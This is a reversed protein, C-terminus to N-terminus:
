GTAELEGYDCEERQHIGLEEGFWRQLSAVLRVTGDPHACAGRGNLVGTLELIREVPGDGRDAADVALALAPLGFKCPGCRGASQSALYSVIRATEHVPCSGAPLPLVVGAGLRAGLGALDEAAIRRGKLAGAPVWVGHYGGLLVPRELETPSLVTGWSAGIVVEGVKAAPTDGARTILMTAPDPGHAWISALQAYTEANSLLTPRGRYGSVAEPAWATVPLNARGSMLEIVARAQGSVFGADATDIRWEVKDGGEREALAETMRIRVMPKDGPLVLHVRRAGLARAALVAGDLILHPRRTALVEDKRSAPEGESLNVVVVAGRRAAATRLKTAFPFAAGGRGRLDAAEAALALQEVTVRGPAAHRLRHRALGPGDALHALLRPGEAVAAKM